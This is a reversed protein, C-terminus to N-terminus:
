SRTPKKQLEDTSTRAFDFFSRKKTADVLVVPPTEQKITVPNQRLGGQPYKEQLRFYGPGSKRGRGVMVGATWGDSSRISYGTQHLVANALKSVERKADYEAPPDIRLVRDLTSQLEDKVVERFAGDLACIAALRKMPEAPLTEVVPRIAEKIEGKLKRTREEDMIELLVKVTLKNLVPAEDSNSLSKLAGAVGNARSHGLANLIDVVNVEGDRGRLAIEFFRAAKRALNDRRPADAVMMTPVVSAVMRCAGSPVNALADRLRRVSVKLDKKKSHTDLRASDVAAAIRQVEICVIQLNQEASGSKLSVDARLRTVEDHDGLCEAIALRGTESPTIRGLAYVAAARVNPYLDGAARALCEEAGQPLPACQGLASAAAARVGPVEDELARLLADAIESSGAGFQGLVTAAATRVSAASDNLIETLRSAAREAPKGFLGLACCAAFRVEADNDQLAAMLACIVEDGGSRRRGIASVAACRVEPSQDSSAANILAASAAPSSGHLLGLADAADRRALKNQNTSVLIAVLEDEPRREILDVIQEEFLDVM